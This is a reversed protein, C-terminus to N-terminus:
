DPSLFEALPTFSPIHHSFTKLVVLLPVAVILGAVGWMWGWVALSVFVVVPNCQLRRGVILPSLVQGELVILTFFVAPVALIRGVSDFTHFAALTLVILGCGPGLYPVFNFVTAMVGWLLPTPMDLLYMVLSTAIGLGINILTITLFYIGVERRVTGIIEVARVKDRLKPLVRVLKLTFLSPSSLIFYLLILAAIAGAVVKEAMAMLSGTLSLSRLAVEPSVGANAARTTALGMKYSVGLWWQMFESGLTGLTDPIYELWEFLPQAVARAVAVIVVVLAIVLLAAALAAPVRHHHLYEVIPSLV